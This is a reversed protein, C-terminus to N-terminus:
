PSHSEPLPLSISVAISAFFPSASLLNIRLHALTAPSICGPAPWAPHAAPALARKTM